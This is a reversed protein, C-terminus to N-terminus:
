EKPNKTGRSITVRKIQYYHENNQPSRETVTRKNDEKSRGEGIEFYDTGYVKGEIILKDYKM